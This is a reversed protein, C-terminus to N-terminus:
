QPKPVASSPFHTVGELVVVEAAEVLVVEEAEVLV